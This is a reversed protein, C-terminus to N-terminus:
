KSGDFAPLGELLDGKESGRGEPKAPETALQAEFLPVEIATGPITLFPAVATCLKGMLKELGEKLSILCTSSFKGYKLLTHFSPPAPERFWAASFHM